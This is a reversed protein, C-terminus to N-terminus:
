PLKNRTNLYLKRLGHNWFAASRDSACISHDIHCNSGTMTKKIIFMKRTGGLLGWDLVIFSDKIMEATPHRMFKLINFAVGDPFQDNLIEIVSM